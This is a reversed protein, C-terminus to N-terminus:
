LLTVVELMTGNVEEESHKYNDWTERITDQWSWSCFELFTCYKRKKNVKQWRSIILQLILLFTDDKDVPSSTKERSCLKWYVIARADSKFSELKPKSFNSPLLLGLIWVAQKKVEQENWEELTDFLSLWKVNEGFENYMTTDPQMLLLYIVLVILPKTRKSWSM